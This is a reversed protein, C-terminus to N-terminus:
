GCVRQVKQPSIASILASLQFSGASQVDKHRNGLEQEATAAAAQQAAAQEQQQRAQQLQGMDDNSLIAVAQLGDSAAHATTWVRRGPAMALLM